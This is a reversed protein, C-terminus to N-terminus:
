RWLKDAMQLSLGQAYKRMAKPPVLHPATGSHCGQVVGKARHMLDEGGYCWAMRPNFYAAIRGIHLAYHFKITFNFLLQGRGHFYHGLAANIQVFAYTTRQFEGAAAAPFKLDERHTEILEEIRLVARLM